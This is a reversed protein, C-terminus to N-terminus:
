VNSKEKKRAQMMQIFREADALSLGATRRPGRSSKSAVWVVPFGLRVAKRYVNGTYDDLVRAIVAFSEGEVPPEAPTRPNLDDLLSPRNLQKTPIVWLGARRAKGDTVLKAPVQGRAAARTAVSRAIGLKRAVWCLPVYYRPVRVGRVVRPCDKRDKPPIM